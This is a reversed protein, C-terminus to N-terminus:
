NKKKPEPERNMIEIYKAGSLVKRGMNSPCKQGEQNCDM